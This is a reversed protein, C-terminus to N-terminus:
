SYKLELEIAWHMYENASSHSMDKFCIWYQKTSVLVLLSTSLVLVIELVKNSILLPFVLFRNTRDTVTEWCYRRLKYELGVTIM